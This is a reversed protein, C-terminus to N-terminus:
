RTYLNKRRINLNLYVNCAIIKILGISESRSLDTFLKTKKAQRAYYTDFSKSKLFTHDYACVTTHVVVVTGRRATYWHTCYYM